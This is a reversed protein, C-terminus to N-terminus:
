VAPAAVVDGDIVPEHKPSPGHVNATPQSDQVYFVILVIVGVVPVLGILLWWGSRGTDHLRRMSVGLGPLFLALAVVISVFRSGMAGDIQSAVLSVVVAFLTYWWYESRRSRGSFVAYQTLVSRVADVFSVHPRRSSHTSRVFPCYHRGCEM